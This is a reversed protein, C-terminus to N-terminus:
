IAIPKRIRWISKRKTNRIVKEHIIKGSKAMLIVYREYISADGWGWILNGDPLRLEGSFWDAKVKGAQYKEGFM